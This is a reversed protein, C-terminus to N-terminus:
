GSNLNMGIQTYHEALALRGHKEAGHALIKLKQTLMKITAQRYNDALRDNALIKQLAIVRFRDMGWYKQSLQDQHGGYKILLPQELFLVPYFATIRLWLDYDECAPLTEDFLGIEDILSRQLLVSSPSILCLALCREFIKGGYKKHKNKPNVRKNNRYWIEETHCIRYEPQKQIAEIQTQLKNKKWADDSDLFALWKGSALKIGANRACSVGQNTQSFHTIRSGYSTLIKSTNDASGDDIVIIELPLYTQQLVSDIARSLFNARNYSPIIVSVTENM